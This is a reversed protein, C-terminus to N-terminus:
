RAPRLRALRQEADARLRAELGGAILIEFEDAARARDGSEELAVARHYRIEPHTPLSQLAEELLVLGRAVEGREVYLWGLTDAISPDAPAAERARQAFQLARADGRENYIWALNNLAAAHRVDAAVVAEFRDAAAALDDRELDRSGLVLNVNADGPQEELWRRLVADGDPHGAAVQAASLRLVLEASPQLEFARSYDQVAADYQRQAMRLDGSVSFRVASEPLRALWTEAAVFDGAQAALRALGLVADFQVPEIELVHVLHSVAADRDDEALATRALNLWAPVYRPALERAKTLVERARIFDRRLM